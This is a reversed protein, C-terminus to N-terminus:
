FLHPRKLCTADSLYRRGVQELSQRMLQLSAEDAEPRREGPDADGPAAKFKRVFIYM